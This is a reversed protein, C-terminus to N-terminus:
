GIISKEFYKMHKLLKSISCKFDQRRKKTEDIVHIIAVNENLIASSVKSHESESPDSENQNLSSSFNEVKESYAYKKSYEEMLNKGENMPKLNGELSFSNNASDNEPNVRSIKTSNAHTSPLSKEKNRKVKMSPSVSKAPSTSMNISGLKKKATVFNKRKGKGKVMKGNSTEYAMGQSHYGLVKQNAQANNAENTCFTNSASNSTNIRSEIPREEVHGYTNMNLEAPKEVDKKGESSAVKRIQHILKHRRSTGTNNSTLQPM